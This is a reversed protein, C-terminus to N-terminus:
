KSFLTVYFIYTHPHASVGDKQFEATYEGAPLSVSLMHYKDPLNNWYDYLRGRIEHCVDQDPEKNVRLIRHYLQVVNAHDVLINDGISMM